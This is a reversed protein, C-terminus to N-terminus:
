TLRQGAPRWSRTTAQTGCAGKGWTLSSPASGTRTSASANDGDVYLQRTGCRDAVARQFLRVNRFGNWEVSRSLLAFLRPDPEFALVAGSGKLAQAALLAYYGINSGVDLVVMGPRILSLFLETEFREYNGTVVLSGLPSQSDADYYMGCGRVDVLVVGQPRVTQYIRNYLSDFGPLKHLALGRGGVARALWRFAFFAAQKWRARSARMTKLQLLNRTGPPQRFHTSRHGQGPFSSAAPGCGPKGGPAGVAKVRM